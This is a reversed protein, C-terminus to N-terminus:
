TWQRRVFYAALYAGAFLSLMFVWSGVSLLAGGTLAQGSTCGRALKAAFGMVLGGAFALALRLALSSRPGRKVEWRLRGALFGSLFAGALIGGLLLVLWDNLPHHGANDLYAAFMPNGEAHAPALTHVCAALAASYAGSAGIGRGALVFAALLALGLGIGALYPNLYPRAGRSGRRELSGEGKSADL